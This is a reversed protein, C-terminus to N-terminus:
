IITKSVFPSESGNRGVGEAFTNSQIRDCGLDRPAPSAVRLTASQVPQSNSTIL